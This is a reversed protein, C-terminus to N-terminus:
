GLDPRSSLSPDSPTLLSHNSFACCSSFYSSASGCVSLIFSTVPPGPSFLFHLQGLFNSKSQGRSLIMTKGQKDVRVSVSSWWWPPVYTTIIIPHISYTVSLFNWSSSLVCLNIGLYTMYMYVGLTPLCVSLATFTKM